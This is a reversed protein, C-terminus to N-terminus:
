ENNGVTKEKKKKEYADTGCLKDWFNFFSGFNGTNASHHFDHRKTGVLVADCSSFPMWFFYYGCHAESTKYMRIAMWITLSTVNSKMVLPGFFFPLANGLATEVIHAHEAAFSVPAHFEHHKKHILPYLQKVHLLRHMWFFLADEWFVCVLMEWLLQKWPLLNRSLFDSNLFHQSCAFALAFIIPYQVLHSLVASRLSGYFVSSYYKRSLKENVAGRAAQAWDLALMNATVEPQVKNKKYREPHMDCYTCLGFMIVAPVSHALVVMAVALWLDSTQLISVVSSLADSSSDSM